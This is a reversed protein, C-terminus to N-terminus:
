GAGPDSFVGFSLALGLSFIRASLANTGGDLALSGTSGRAVEYAAFVSLADRGFRKVIYRAEAGIVPKLYTSNPSAHVNLFEIGGLIGLDFSEWIRYAFHAVLDYRDIPSSDILRSLSFGISQHDSPTPPFELGAALQFGPYRTADTGTTSPAAAGWLNLASEKTASTGAQTSNPFGFGLAVSALLVAFFSFHRM